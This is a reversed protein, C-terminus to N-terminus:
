EGMQEKKKLLEKIDKLHSRIVDVQFYFATLWVLIAVTKSFEAWEM